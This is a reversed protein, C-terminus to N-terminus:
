SALILYLSLNTVSSATSKRLCDVTSDFPLMLSQQQGQQVKFFYTTTVWQGVAYQSEGVWLNGSIDLYYNNAGNCDPAFLSAMMMAMLSTTIIHWWWWVYMVIMNGEDGHASRTTATTLGIWRKSTSDEDVSLKGGARRFLENRRSICCCSLQWWLCVLCAICPSNM